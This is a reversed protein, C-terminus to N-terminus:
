AAAAGFSSTGFETVRLREWGLGLVQFIGVYQVDVYAGGERGKTM